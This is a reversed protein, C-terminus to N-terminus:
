WAFARDSGHTMTSLGACEGLFHSVGDANVVERIEGTGELALDADARAVVLRLCLLLITKVFPLITRVCKAQYASLKARM